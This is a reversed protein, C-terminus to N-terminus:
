AGRPGGHKEEASSLPIHHFVLGGEAKENLLTNILGTDGRQLVCTQRWQQRCTQEANKKGSFQQTCTKVYLTLTNQHAHSGVNLKAGM